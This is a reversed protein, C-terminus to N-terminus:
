PLETTACKRSWAASLAARPPSLLLLFIKAFTNSACVCVDLQSLRFELVRPFVGELLLFIDPVQFFLERFLTCCRCRSRFCCCLVLFCCCSSSFAFSAGCCCSNAAAAFFFSASSADCCFVSAAVRFPSCSFVRTFFVVCTVCLVILDFSEDFSPVQALVLLTLHFVDFFIFFYILTRLLDCLCSLACLIRSCTFSILFIVLMLVLFLFKNIECMLLPRRLQPKSFLYQLSTQLIRRRVTSM